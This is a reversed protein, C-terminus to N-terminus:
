RRPSAGAPARTGVKRLIGIKQEYKWFEIIENGEGTPNSESTQKDCVSGGPLKDETNTWFVCKNNLLKKLSKIRWQFIGVSPDHCPGEEVLLVIEHQLQTEEYLLPKNKAEKAAIQMAQRLRLKERDTLAMPGEEDQQSWLVLNNKYNPVYTTTGLGQFMWRELEAWQGGIRWPDKLCGLKENWMKADTVEKVYDWMVDGSEMDTIKVPGKYWLGNDGTANELQVDKEGDYKYVGAGEAEEKKGQKM